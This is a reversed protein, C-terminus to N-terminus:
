GRISRSDGLVDHQRIRSIRPYDICVLRATQLSPAESPSEAEVKAAPSRHSNISRAVSIITQSRKFFNLIRGAKSFHLLYVSPM